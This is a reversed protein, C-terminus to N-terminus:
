AGDGPLHVTTMSRAPRPPEPPPATEAAASQGPFTPRDRGAKHADYVAFRRAIINPDTM